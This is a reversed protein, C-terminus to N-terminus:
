AANCLDYTDLSPPSNRAKLCNSMATASLQAGCCEGICYPYLSVHKGTPTAKDFAKREFSQVEEDDVLGKRPRLLGYYLPAQAGAIIEPGDHLDILV